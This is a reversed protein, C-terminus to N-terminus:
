WPKLRQFLAKYDRARLRSSINDEYWPGPDSGSIAGKLWQDPPPVQRRNERYRKLDEHKGDVILEPEQHYLTRHELLAEVLLEVKNWSSMLDRVCADLLVMRQPGRVSYKESLQALDTRCTEEYASFAVQRDVGSNRREYGLVQAAMGGMLTKARDDSLLNNGSTGLEGASRRHEITVFLIKGLRPSNLFMATHGAEHIARETDPLSYPAPKM